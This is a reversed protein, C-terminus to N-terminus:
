PLRCEFRTVPDDFAYTQSFRRQTPYGPSPHTPRSQVYSLAGSSGRRRWSIEVHSGHRRWSRGGTKFVFLDSALPSRLRRRPPVIFVGQLIAHSLQLPLNGQHRSTRTADTCGDGLNEPLVPRLHYHVAAILLRDLHGSRLDRPGPSLGNARD